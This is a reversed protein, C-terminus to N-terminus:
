LLPPSDGKRKSVARKICSILFLLPIYLYFLALCTYTLIDMLLQIYIINDFFLTSFFYLLLILILMKTRKFNFTQQLIRTSCWLYLCISSLVLIFMVFIFIFEFSEVMTFSVVKIMTLTPWVTHKLKGQTFYMFTIITLFLYIITAGLNGFYAWKMSNEGNKVFPLYFLLCEFGVFIFLGEKASIFYDKLGHNFLPMINQINLYPFLYYVSIGLFSPLILGWFVIGSVVRFGGSVIYYLVVCTALTLEGTPIRDFAWSQLLDIYTYLIMFGVFILYLVFLINLIRGIYKGFVDVHFSILDGKSATKLVHKIMMLLFHVSVGIVVISVWADQGAGKSIKSQFNMMGIGLQSSLVLYFLYFPSVMSSEKVAAM